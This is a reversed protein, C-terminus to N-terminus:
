EGAACKFKGVAQSKGASGITASCAQLVQAVHRSQLVEVDAVAQDGVHADALM